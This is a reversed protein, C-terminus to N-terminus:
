QLRKQIEEDKVSRQLINALHVTIEDVTCNLDGRLWQVCVDLLGGISFRIRILFFDYDPSQESLNLYAETSRILRKKLKELHVMAMGTQLLLRYMQQNEVLPRTLRQLFPLPETFLQRCDVERMLEAAHSFADETIEEVLGPVDPYHAYFTSRNVDARRVIDTVTIKEFEKEELLALFATRILNRSRVASRYEQKAM